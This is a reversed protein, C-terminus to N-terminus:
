QSLNLPVEGSFTDLHYLYQAHYKAFYGIVLNIVLKKVKYIGQVTFYLKWYKNASKERLYLM